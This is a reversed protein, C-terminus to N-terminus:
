NLRTSAKAAEKAKWFAKNQANIDAISVPGTSQSGKGAAAPIHSADATASRNNASRKAFAAVKFLSAAADCTLKSVNGLEGGNSFDLLEKGAGTMYVSNLVGKRVNCMTDVTIKRARSSDFTPVRYGPLLVEADSILDQFSRALAASDGVQARRDRTNKEVGGAASNGDADAGDDYGGTGDPVADAPPAGDDTEAGPGPAGEEDDGGGQLLQLIKAVSAELAALRQETPDDQTMTGDAAPDAGDDPPPSGGGSHIHIHTHNDDEDGDGGDGAGIDGVEDDPLGSNGIQDLADDMADRAARRFATATASPLQSIRRRASSMPMPNEKPPSAMLSDGISCRPGCRGKLVVAVHNGIINTQAGEGEGTQEYDAEFGASVERKDLDKVDAILTADTILFDAVLCDSYEGSGRHTNMVVGKALDKWNAPTVDLDPHDDVIPKGNFSSVCSESFLDRASRTVRAVGDSGVKIPTEGPGYVMLGVRAIPVGKCLLFGEPTM